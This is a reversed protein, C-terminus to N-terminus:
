GDTGGYFPLCKEKRRTTKLAQVGSQSYQAVLNATQSFLRRNRCIEVGLPFKLYLYEWSKIKVWKLRM